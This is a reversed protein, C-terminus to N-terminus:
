KKGIPRSWYIIIGCYLCEIGDPRTNIDHMIAWDKIRGCKPCPIQGVRLKSRLADFDEFCISKYKQIPCYQKCLNKYWSNIEIDDLNFPYNYKALFPCKLM